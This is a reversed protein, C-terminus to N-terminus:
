VDITFWLWDGYVVGVFQYSYIALSLGVVPVYLCMLIVRGLTPLPLRSLCVAGGGIALVLIALFFYGSRDLRHFGALGVSMVLPPGAVTGILLCITRQHRGDM